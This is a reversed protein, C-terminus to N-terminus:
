VFKLKIKEVENNYTKSINDYMKNAYNILATMDIFFAEYKNSAVYNRFIDVSVAEVMQNIQSVARDKRYAKDRKQVEVRMQKESIDGALYKVRLLHNDPPHLQVGNRNRHGIAGHFCIVTALRITEEQPIRTPFPPPKIDKDTLKYRVMRSPSKDSWVYSNVNDWWHYWAAMLRNYEIRTAQDFMYTLTQINPMGCTDTQQMPVEPERGLTGNRRAWEYFHPNHIRGQELEGTIWSFATQCQTCWMQDCGDIKSITAACKPCPKSEKLLIKVSAINDADCAHDAGIIERCDACVKVECVGCVFDEYLFGRCETSPCGNILKPVKIQVLADQLNEARGYKLIQKCIQINQYCEDEKIDADEDDPPLKELARMQKRLDNYLTRAGKYAKVYPQTEPLRAKEMDFLKNERYTKYTSLRWGKETNDNLFDENLPERCHMCTIDLPANLLYNQFCGRCSSESCKSCTVIAKVRILETCISCSTM